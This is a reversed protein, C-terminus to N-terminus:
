KLQVLEARILQFEFRKSGDSDTGWQKRQVSVLLTQLANDPSDTIGIYNKSPEGNAQTALWHESLNRELIDINQQGNFIRGTATFGRKVYVPGNSDNDWAHVTGDLNLVNLLVSRRAGGMLTGIGPVRLEMGQFTRWGFMDAQVNCYFGPVMCFDNYDYNYGALTGGSRKTNLAVEWDQYAQWSHDLTLSKIDTAAHLNKDPTFGDPLSLGVNKDEDPHQLQWQDGSKSAPIIAYDKPTSTPTADPTPTVTLTVVKTPEVSAQVSASDKAAVSAGASAEASRAPGIPSNGGCSATILVGAAVAGRTYKLYKLIDVEKM